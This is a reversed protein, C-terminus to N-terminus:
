KAWCFLKLQRPNYASYSSAIFVRQTYIDSKIEQWFSCTSDTKCIQAECSLSSPTLNAIKNKVNAPFSSNNWSSPLASEIVSLVDSRLSDNLEISKIMHIEYNYVASSSDSAAPNQQNMVLVLVAAVLLVAFFAEVIRIWGRKDKM